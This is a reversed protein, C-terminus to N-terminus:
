QMTCPVGGIADIENWGPVRGSALTVRVAAIPEGCALPAETIQFPGGPSQDIVPPAVAIHRGSLTIAEISSIAGPNYTEYIQLQSMSVPQAFGVEIFETKADAELSAWAHPNDGSAPYVDPPGLVQQASWSTASYQSSVARVSAAWVIPAPATAVVPLEAGILRRYEDRTIRGRELDRCALVHHAVSAQATASLQATGAPLTCDQDGAPVLLWVAMAILTAACSVVLAAPPAFRPLLSSRM